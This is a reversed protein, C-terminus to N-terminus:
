SFYGVFFMNEKGLKGGDRISAWMGVRVGYSTDGRPSADIRMEGKAGMAEYSFVGQRGGGEVWVKGAHYGWGADDAGLGSAERRWRRAGGALFLPVFADDGDGSGGHGIV